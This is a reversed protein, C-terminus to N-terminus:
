GAEFIVPCKEYEDIFSALGERRDGVPRSKETRMHIAFSRRPRGSNNPGSGHYTYNDHFSAGGAPLLAPVEQWEAEAPVPIAARVADIDQQYFGGDDLLGWRHSGPVLRMPGCVEDVEDLAVWATFLESGEEWNQWYNRDQHWGINTASVTQETSSPKYLLQVWWVQVRQAGTLAAAWEGLQPHTILTMVAQSALQPMEIKCLIQPDDGPNWPSPEPKIGTDYQGARINDMGKRADEVVATPLIPESPIYFGDRCYAETVGVDLKM